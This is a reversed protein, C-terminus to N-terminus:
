SHSAETEGAFCELAVNEREGALSGSALCTGMELIMTHYKGLSKDRNVVNYPKCTLIDM